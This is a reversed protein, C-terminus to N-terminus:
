NTLREGSKLTEIIFDDAWSEFQRNKIFGCHGGFDTYTVSINPLESISQLLNADIIPDDRSMLIHIPTKLNTLKEARISYGEFYASSNAYDTHHEVFYDTLTALSRTHQQPLEKFVHPFLSIKKRISKLWKKKFYQHYIRPGHELRHMTDQPMLVPCVAVSQEILGESSLAHTIRITFNGGLSFGIMSTSSPKIREIADRAANVVETLRCSHFLEENLHHSIDHDRLTLRLIQFGNQILSNAISLLYGSEATGEWGHILIALPANPKDSVNWYGILNSGGEGKLLLSKSNQLWSRAKNRLKAKRIPSSSLISQVHPNRLWFPPM